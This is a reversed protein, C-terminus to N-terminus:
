MYALSQLSWFVTNSRKFLLEILQWTPAPLQAWTRQLVAELQQTMKELGILCLKVYELVISDLYM